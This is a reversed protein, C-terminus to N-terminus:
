DEIILCKKETNVLFNKIIEINELLKESVYKTTKNKLSLYIVKMPSGSILNREQFYIDFSVITYDNVLAFQWIMGDDTQGLGMRSIQLVENFHEEFITSIPADYYSTLTAFVAIFIYKKWLAEVINSPTKFRLGSKEFLAAVANTAAVDGGFVAAFVDGKKRIVGSEEIHSLVYVCGDLVTSGSVERLRDGNDVGNSFSLLITNSDIHGSIKAYADLLDYSKVCFLVLDFVEGSGSLSELTKANVAVEFATSDEIVKVGREQIARLHEGRAFAVVDLGCRVFHAAIYGGVGGLGVIAIKM